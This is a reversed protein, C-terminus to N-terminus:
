LNALEARQVIAWRYYLAPSSYKCPATAQRRMLNAPTQLELHTVGDAHASKMASIAAAYGALHHSGEKVTWSRAQGDVKTTMTIMGIPAPHASGNIAIRHRKALFGNNVKAM